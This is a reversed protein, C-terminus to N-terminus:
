QVYVPVVLLYVPVELAKLTSVSNYVWKVANASDSEVVLKDQSFCSSFCVAGLIALM